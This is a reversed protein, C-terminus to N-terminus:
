KSTENEKKPKFSSWWGIHGCDACILDQTDLRMINEKSPTKTSCCEPFIAGARKM